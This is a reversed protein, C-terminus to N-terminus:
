DLIVLLILQEIMKVLIFSKSSVSFPKVIKPTSKPDVWELKNRHLQFRWDNWCRNAEYLKMQICDQREQAKKSLKTRNLPPLGRASKEMYWGGGIDTLLKQTKRKFKIGKM